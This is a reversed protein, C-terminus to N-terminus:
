PDDERKITGIHVGHHYVEQSGRIVRATHKITGPDTITKGDMSKVNVIAHPKGDVDVIEFCRKVEIFDGNELFAKQDKIDHGLTQGRSLGTVIRAGCIHCGWLDGYQVVDIGKSKDDDLFHVLAIQNQLCDMEVHCRACTNKM